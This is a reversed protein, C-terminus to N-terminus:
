IWNVPHTQVPPNPSEEHNLVCEFYEKWSHIEEGATRLLM